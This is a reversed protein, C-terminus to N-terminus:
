AGDEDDVFLTCAGSEADGVRARMSGFLERGVGFANGSLDPAVTARAAWEAEPV